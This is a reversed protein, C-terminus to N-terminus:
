RGTSLHTRAQFDRFLTHDVQIHTKIGRVGAIESLVRRIRLVDALSKVRGAIEVVGNSVRVRRDLMVLDNIALAQNALSKLDIDDTYEPTRVKLNSLVDRLGKVGAATRVALDEDALREVTGVLRAIGHSVRSGVGAFGSDDLRQRVRRSLDEDDLYSDTSVTLANQVLAVGPIAEVVEEAVMREEASDVVGTLTAIRGEIKVAIRNNLGDGLDIRGDESLAFLAHGAIEQDRLSSGVQRNALRADDLSARLGPEKLTTDTPPFPEQALKDKAHEESPDM